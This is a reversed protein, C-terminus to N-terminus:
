TERGGAGVPEPSRDARTVDFTLRGDRVDVTIAAGEDVDGELLKRSLENEVDRQITRRLPRAGYEPDFGREAIHAVAEDTFSLEIHQARLRRELRDLLLRAIDVVQERTLARFTIIEDVRNLFEPRFHSRLIQMLDDKLKEFSENKRTQEQIRDAGINSTMIIVTNKFDVTRGQGDTLRGDDLIQLLLNFVDPHAKEIEDLLLVSYPKRRVAETLQGAEEYGVYGPPAGVLRSVTHREQFESMDIRTMVNEDGFLALALTRALETKGVGTPGLFLFSGIPRNPDGLGARARRVAEAVARVAEDQGVVREHLQQELSLLRDREEKTLESVPIGTARSVVDAIDEIMVEPARQRGQKQEALERHRGDINERLERARDYKEGNVAQDRERELRKIEEELARTDVPKTKARLRVRACAQDVLDIAKDPLFRDTIYRDSLEAAAVIAEDTIRVRHFAEYRDKLGHLIETTEEVTPERVLVPQFRRELAPDKEIHKRYENITTAGIVHLEGRALAPKLMNAADMSGEASGAGVVTHVEDIFLIIEDENELIEDIVTKLREEFEGRYKTGAVMGGLDLAVVRRNALTEPVENNVIRQAIGEVIVTKGVGPDGILVPNNKQRRSLIEITQEIEDARGIVPDLKGDRAMQTLDRSYQDLTKTPSSTTPEGTPDVGRVVAGRLKTHSLGFRRLINAAQSEEDRAIALLIHEPGIYSVGLERAEDYAALIIRKADPSLSPSVGTPKGKEAEQEIHDAIQKPDADVAALVHRVVDDELAGHLLHDTDLDLSGWEVAREAAGQLVERTADSFLQTVDVQEVARRSPASQHPRGTTSAQEFFRAIFDDFMGLGGFDTGGSRAEALHIECLYQTESHRGPRVRKISGVAPRIGCVDCMRDSM